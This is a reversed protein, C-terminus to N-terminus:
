ANSWSLKFLLPKFMKAYTYTYSIIRADGIVNLSTKRQSIVNADFQKLIVHSTYKKLLFKGAYFAKSPIVNSTSM